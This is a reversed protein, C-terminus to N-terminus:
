PTEAKAPATWDDTLWLVATGDLGATLISRGDPSFAVTTVPQDHHKLTLIEIGEQPSASDAAARPQADEAPRADHAVVDWIKASRDSSGTLARRGDPSLAVSNIADTHGSYRVLPKRTVTDFVIAQGNADGAMIRRARRGFLGRRVGALEAEHHQRGASRQGRELSAADRGRRGDARGQRQAFLHRLSDAQGGGAPQHRLVRVVRRAPLDWIRATGDNSATLLVRPDVPSFM